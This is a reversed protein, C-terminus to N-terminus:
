MCSKQIHENQKEGAKQKVTEQRNQMQKESLESLDFDILSLCFFFGASMLNLRKKLFGLFYTDRVM